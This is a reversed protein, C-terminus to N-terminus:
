LNPGQVTDQSPSQGNKSYNVSRPNIILVFYLLLESFMQRSNTIRCYHFKEESFRLKGDMQNCMKCASFQYLKPLIIYFRLLMSLSLGRLASAVERFYRGLM